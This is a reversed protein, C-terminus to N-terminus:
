SGSSYVYKTANIIDYSHMNHAQIFADLPVFAIALFTAPATVCILLYQLGGGGRFDMNKMLM